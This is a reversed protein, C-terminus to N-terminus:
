VNKFALFLASFEYRDFDYMQYVQAELDILIWCSLQLNAPM